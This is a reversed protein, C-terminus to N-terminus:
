SKLEPRNRLGREYLETEKNISWKLPSALAGHLGPSAHDSDKVTIVVYGKKVADATVVKGGPGEGDWWIIGWLVGQEPVEM